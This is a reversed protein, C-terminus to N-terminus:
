DGARPAGAGAYELEVELGAPDRVQGVQEDGAVRGLRQGPQDGSRAAPAGARAVAPVCPLLMFFSNGDRGSCDLYIRGGHHEIAAQAIPLSLGSGRQHHEIRGVLEFKGFLAHRRDEPIPVGTNFVEVLKWQIPVQEWERFSAQSWLRNMMGADPQWQEPRLGPIHEARRIVVRGGERNHVVANSLIREVALRLVGLDCLVSWEDDRALENVVTIGRARARERVAALGVELLHGVPVPKLVLERDHNQVATMQIADNLFGALRRGSSAIIDAVEPLNLAAAARRQDADARELKLRMMDVGGMLSTLPTRVEHSVLVLFDDKAKDAQRLGELAADLREGRDRAERQAEALGEALRNFGAVVAAAEDDHAPSEALPGDEGRALAGLRSVLAERRAREQAVERRAHAHAIAAAAAFAVAVGAVAWAVGSPAASGGAAWARAPAAFACAGALLAPTAPVRAPFGGPHRSRAM